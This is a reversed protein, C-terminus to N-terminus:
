LDRTLYKISAFTIPQVSLEIELLKIQFLFKMIRVIDIGFRRDVHPKFGIKHNHRHKSSFDSNKAM